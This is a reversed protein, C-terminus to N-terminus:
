QIFYDNENELEEDLLTQNEHRMIDFVHCKLKADSYKNKSYMLLLIQEIYPKMAM